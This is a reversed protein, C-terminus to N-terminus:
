NGGGAMVCFTVGLRLDGAKVRDTNDGLAELAAAMPYQTIPSTRRFRPHNFFDPNTTPAPVARYPLPHRWLPKEMTQTPLGKGQALSERLAAVGWGAPSVAGIGRVYIGSM